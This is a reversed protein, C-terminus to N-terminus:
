MARSSGPPIRRVSSRPIDGRKWLAFGITGGSGIPADDQMGPVPFDNALSGGSRHLCDKAERGMPVIDRSQRSAGDARPRPNGTSARGPVQDESGRCVEFRFDNRNNNKERCDITM